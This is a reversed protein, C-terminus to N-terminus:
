PSFTLSYSYKVSLQARQDLGSAEDADVRRAWTYSAGLLLPELPTWGLTASAYDGRQFASRDQGSVNDVLTFSYGVTGFWHRTAYLEFYAVVGLLPVAVFQGDSRPALDVGGDNMYNAVGHGYVTSLRTSVYPYGQAPFRASSSAHVGWGLAHGGPATPNAADRYGLDRLLGALQFHTHDSQYRYHATFDPISSQSTADVGST